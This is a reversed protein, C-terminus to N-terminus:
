KKGDAISAKREVRDSELDAFLTALEQDDM